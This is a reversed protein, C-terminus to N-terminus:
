NLLVRVIAHTKGKEGLGLKIHIASGVDPQKPVNDKVFSVIGLGSGVAGLAELVGAM